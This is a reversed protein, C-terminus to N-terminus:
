SPSHQLNEASSHKANEETSHVAPKTNAATEKDGITKTLAKRNTATSPKSLSNPALSSGFAAFTKKNGKQTTKTPMTKQSYTRLNPAKDPRTVSNKRNKIPSNMGMVDKVTSASSRTLSQQQKGKQKLGKRTGMMKKSSTPISRKLDDTALSERLVEEEHHRVLKEEAEMLTREDAEIKAKVRAIEKM